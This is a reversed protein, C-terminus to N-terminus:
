LSRGGAEFPQTADRHPQVKSIRNAPWLRFTARTFVEDLYLGAYFWPYLATAFQGLPNVRVIVQVGYLLVFCAVSFVLLPRQPVRDNMALPLLRQFVIEYGFYLAGIAAALGLLGLSTFASRRSIAASLIGTIALGVVPIGFLLAGNTATSTRFLTAALTAVLVGVLASGLLKPASAIPSPPTMLKLRAQGVAGGSGLFAHAKYLSHALLHLFALGYLGLGCEMLMFGMQACTSWALNVKVSIRTTMVLSSVVATSCGVVVLLGQAAPTSDIAPALRILMFGGLNVVGAHLLASVPTPAEMVQILWGHLPLQACKIIASIALLFVAVHISLPVQHFGAIRDVVENMEFSGTQSGLVVVGGLLMLDGLRSALFKKHAAIVAAQRNPYLTLLGHISLGTLIWAILFVILSNTVVLLGVAALTRMLNVIYYAEKPDGAMYSRSYRVIVWGLFAVLLLMLSELTDFRFSFHAGGFDALADIQPARGLAQSYCLAHVCYALSLFLSAASTAGALRWARSVTLKEVSALQGSVGGLVYLIPPLCLLFASHASWLHQLYHM